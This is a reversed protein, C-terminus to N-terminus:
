LQGANCLVINKVWPSSCGTLFVSTRWHVQLSIKRLVCVVYLDSFEVSALESITVITKLAEVTYHQSLLLFLM